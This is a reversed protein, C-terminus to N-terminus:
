MAPGVSVGTALKLIEIELNFIKLSFLVASVWPAMFNNHGFNQAMSYDYTPGPYGFPSAFSNMPYGPPIGAGPQCSAVPAPPRPAALSPAAASVLGPWLGPTFNGAAYPAAPLQPPRMDAPATSTPQSMGLNSHGPWPQQTAFIGTSTSPADTTPPLANVGTVVAAPTVVASSAAKTTATATTTTIADAAAAATSAFGHRSPGSHGYHEHLVSNWLADGTVDTSIPLNDDKSDMDLTEIDIWSSNEEDSIDSYNMCHLSVLM